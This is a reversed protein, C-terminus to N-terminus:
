IKRCIAALSSCLSPSLSLSVRYMADILEVSWDAMQSNSLIKVLYGQFRHDFFGGETLNESLTRMTYVRRHGVALDLPNLEERNKIIGLEFGIRRHLSDANPCTFIATGGDRLWRKTQKILKVPDEVHELVYTGVITDYVQAPMFDEFLTHIVKPKKSKQIKDEMYFKIMRQSGEIVTVNEFDFTLRDAFIGDGIGLLLIAPGEIEKQVTLYAYHSILRASLRGEETFYAEAREDLRKTELNNM